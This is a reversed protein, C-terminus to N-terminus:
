SVMNKVGGGEKNVQTHTKLNWAHGKVQVGARQWGRWGRGSSGIRKVQEDLEGRQLMEPEARWRCTMGLKYKLRAIVETEASDDIKTAEGQIVANSYEFYLWINIWVEKQQTQTCSSFNHHYHRIQWNVSKDLYCICSIIIKHGIINELPCLLSEM